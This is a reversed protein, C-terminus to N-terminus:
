EPFLEQISNKIENPQMYTETKFQLYNLSANSDNFLFNSWELLQWGYGREITKLDISKEFSCKSQKHAYAFGRSLVGFFSRNQYDQFHAFEHAFLGIKANFPVDKLAIVSDKVQKNIRIVYSRNKRSRFLLSGITPRANLTTKIKRYKFKIDKNYLEPYNSLAILIALESEKPFNNKRNWNKLLEEKKNSFETSDYYQQIYLEQSFLFPSITLILSFFLFSFFKPTVPFMYNFKIPM